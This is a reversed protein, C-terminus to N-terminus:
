RPLINSSPKRLVVGSYPTLVGMQPESTNFVMEWDPPAIYALNQDTNNIIVRIAESGEERVFSLLEGEMPVFAFSGKRLVSHDQRLRTIETYFGHLAVAQPNDTYKWNFPRRNDPDKGGALAIEDGYYIHPAGVFCMQFLVALRIRSLDGKAVTFLRLTDHSGLLNMMASLAHWPYLALGAEIQQIFEDKSARKLIFFDLVPNKFCAYNMVSDFYRASVWDEAHHWIEGVIWAEPKSRKVQHRFLEWFWYPVEDPVDLRFGDIGIENLWWDTTNMLYDVLPWNPAAEAIDRVENEEPHFRALDYNLDPMDKIGWWCQYYEKPKFDAPLPKPLPWKHWDYWNWYPSNAGKEVGDRFAWFTEGTHNFAVDLIIKLGMAHAQQVFDIMEETSAFQPDISHYDASDYKHNSKAQWLPNFYITNVGLKRLYDLKSRVGAIDGGYFSWWDPKGEPQWPSQTLGAIDDWDEVLHYYEKEPSLYEGPPPPTKCDFYYWQSFDPNRSPDGNCFRDPFIQYIISSQVWDPVQFIAMAGFKCQIPTLDHGDPSIGDQGIILQRGQYKVTIFFEFEPVLKIQPQEHLLLHFVDQAKTGGVRKMAHHRGNVVLEVAEAMGVPWSFRLEGRDEGSRVVQYLSATQKTQMHELLQQWDMQVHTEDEVLLLSNWGGYPDPLTNPNAADAMWVGDVIFKYLYRGRPLDLSYRFIGNEEPM